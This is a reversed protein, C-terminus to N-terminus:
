CFGSKLNRISNATSDHEAQKRGFKTKKLKRLKARSVWHQHCFSVLKKLRIHSSESWCYSGKPPHRYVKSESKLLSGHEQSYSYRSLSQQPGVIPSNPADYMLSTHRIHGPHHNMLFLKLAHLLWHCVISNWQNTVTTLSSLKISVVSENSLM